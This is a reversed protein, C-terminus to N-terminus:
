RSVRADNASVVGWARADQRRGRYAVRHEAEARAFAAADRWARTRIEGGVPSGGAHRTQPAGLPVAIGPANEPRHAGTTGNTTM